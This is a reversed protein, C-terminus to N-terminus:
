FNCVLHKTESFLSLLNKLFIFYLLPVTRNNAILMNMHGVLNSLINKIFLQGIALKLWGSMLQLLFVPEFPPKYFVIKDKINNLMYKANFLFVFLAIECVILSFFPKDLFNYRDLFASLCGNITDTTCRKITAQCLKGVVTVRLLVLIFVNIYAFLCVFIPLYSLPHIMIQIKCWIKM